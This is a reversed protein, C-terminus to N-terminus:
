LSHRKKDTLTNLFKVIYYVDEKSLDKGLQIKGMIKVSEELTEVKGDHFYPATIAVNRLMPVKFVFKDNEDETVDYRGSDEKDGYTQLIGAKRYMNGGLLPGTHCFICTTNTFVEYGILEENTLSDYQDNMFDDFRNNSILTREFAAISRTLNDFTLPEKEDPFAEKFLQPYEPHKSLKKVVEEEGPMAMEDPDLMPIGAQEELTIASGDWFQSIQYGADLVTPSNRDGMEGHAGPSTPRNDSGPGNEDVIHCTNCSQTDNISLINDFYLKEGLAIMEPTDNESGPMTEPLSGFIEKAQKSLAESTRTPKKEGCGFLLFLISLITLVSIIRKM